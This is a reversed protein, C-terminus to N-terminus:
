KRLIKKYLFDRANNPFIGVMTGGLTTIAFDHFSILGEKYFTTRAYANKRVYNLGGRRTQLSSVRAAVLIEHLNCVSKPYKKLVRLWLEYDEFGPIDNYGNMEDVIFNKKFMVTMHNLPNRKRSFSFIEGSTLPVMRYSITSRWNTSFESILGGLVKVNENNKFYKYQKELRKPLSHDDSDMRAVLNFNCKNLGENLALGLNVREDLSVIDIDILGSYKVKFSDIVADLEETLEGDRVIVIQKPRYSQTMMSELAEYLNNPKELFYVSMLVSVDVYIM